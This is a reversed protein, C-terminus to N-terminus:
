LMDKLENLLNPESLLFEVYEKIVDGHCPHPKCFCYIKLENKEKVIEAFRILENIVTPNLISVQEYLWDRYKEIAELRPLENTIPFPNGLPSGRGIYIADKVPDKYKNLVKIQAM